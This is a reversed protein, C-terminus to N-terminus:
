GRWGMHGRGHENLFQYLIQKGRDLSHSSSSSSPTHIWIRTLEELFSMQREQNVEDTILSLTPEHAHDWSSNKLINEMINSDFGLIPPPHLTNKLHITPCKEPSDDILLTNSADWLPFDNWVKALSKIFITDKPHQQHSLSPNMTSDEHERPVSDDKSHFLSPADQTNVRKECRNQGWIFLLRHAIDTPFLSKVLLKATKPKASTWVALTFRSDIFQLFPQLDTREIIPTGALFASSPRYIRPKTRVRTVGNPDEEMAPVHDEM